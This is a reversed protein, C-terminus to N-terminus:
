HGCPDVASLGSYMLNSCLQIPTRSTSPRPVFRFRSSQRLWDPRSAISSSVVHASGTVRMRYARNVFIGIVPNHVIDLSVNHFLTFPASDRPGETWLFLLLRDSAPPQVEILNEADEFYTRHMQAVAALTNVKSKLNFKSAAFRYGDRARTVVDRFRMGSGAVNM